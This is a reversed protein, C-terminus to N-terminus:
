GTSPKLSFALIERAYPWIPSASAAKEKYDSPHIFDLQGSSILHGIREHCADALEIQSDEKLEQVVRRVIGYLAERRINDSKTMLLDLGRAMM